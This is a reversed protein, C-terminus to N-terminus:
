VNKNMLILKYLFETYSQYAGDITTSFDEFFNDNAQEHSKEAKAKKSKLECISADLKRIDEEIEELYLLVIMKVKEIPCDPENVSIHKIFDIKQMSTKKIAVSTENTTKELYKIWKDIQECLNYTEEIRAHLLKSREAKEAASQTIYNATFSGLATLLGGAITSFLPIFDTFAM